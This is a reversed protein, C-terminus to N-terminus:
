VLVEVVVEAVKEVAGEVEKVEDPDLPESGFLLDYVYAGGKVIVIAAVACAALLLAKQLTSM